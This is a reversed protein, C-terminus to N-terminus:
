GLRPPAAGGGRRAVVHEGFSPIGMEWAGPATRWLVGLDLLTDLLGPVKGDAGRRETLLDLEDDDLQGGRRAALDALPALSRHVGRARAEEFREAFLQAIEPRARRIGKRAAAARIAGAAAAADWAASGLLQIFFPYDQSEEALMAAAEERFPMGARRAPEVLARLTARRELRGVPTRALAREIFTGSRRLRRPADPTGAALLAFPLSRITAEQVAGFFPRGGEPEVTHAEDLLIVLPADAAGIWSALLAEVDQTPVAPTTSVGFGAAQAGTIRSGILGARERLQRVLLNRDRFCDAPLNEARMGRRRAEEALQGLLATKGNGRPGFYLVGRSPRRGSELTDLVQRGPALERGRGALLPPPAGAGPQFPNAM